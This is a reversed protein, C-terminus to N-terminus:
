KPLSPAGDTPSYPKDGLVIRSIAFKHEIGAETKWSKYEGCALIKREDKIFDKTVRHASSNPEIMLPIDQPVETIQGNVPRNLVVTRLTMFIFEGGEGAVIQPDGIIKGQFRCDNQCIGVWEKKQTM